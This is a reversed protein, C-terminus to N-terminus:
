PNNKLKPKNIINEQLDLIKNQINKPLNIFHIGLCWNNDKTKEKHRIECLIENSPAEDLVSIRCSFNKDIEHDILIQAGGQSIDLIKLPKITEKNNAFAIELKLGELPKFRLWKRQEFVIRNRGSNKAKYAAFDAMSLLGNLDEGNKPFSAVGISLRIPLKIKKRSYPAAVEILSLNDRIRGLAFSSKDASIEPFVILFEDGGYRGVYDVSRLNKKIIKGIVELAHNGVLHGYTDNINKFYDIDIMAITMEKNYRRCREIELKLLKMIHRFNFCNTLDDYQALLELKRKLKEETESLSGLAIGTFYYIISRPLLTNAIFNVMSFDKSLIVEAVFVSLSITAAILGGKLGFWFGALAILLIYLSEIIFGTEILFIRGYIITILGITLFFFRFLGSSTFFPLNIDLNLDKKNELM